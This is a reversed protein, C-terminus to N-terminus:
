KKTSQPRYYYVTGNGRNSGLRLWSYFVSKGKWQHAVKVVPGDKGPTGVRMVIMSHHPDDVSGLEWDTTDARNTFTIVGKIQIIDGRALSKQDIRRGWVYLGQGAGCTTTRCPM